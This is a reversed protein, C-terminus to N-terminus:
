EGLQRHVMVLRKAVMRARLTEQDATCHDGWVSPSNVWCLNADCSLNMPLDRVAETREALALCLGSGHGVYESVEWEVSKHVQDSDISTAASLAFGALLAAVTIMNGLLEFMVSKSAYEGPSVLSHLVGRKRAVEPGTNAPTSTPNEAM